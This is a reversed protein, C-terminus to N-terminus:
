PNDQLGGESDQQMQEAAWRQACRTLGGWGAFRGHGKGVSDVVEGHLLRGRRDIVLRLVLTLHQQRVLDNESARPM